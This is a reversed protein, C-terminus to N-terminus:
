GETTTFWPSYSIVTVERGLPKDYTSEFRFRWTRDPTADPPVPLAVLQDYACGPESPEPFQVAGNFVSGVGANGESELFRQISLAVGDNCYFDRQYYLTGGIVYPEDPDRVVVGGDTPTVLTTQEGIRLDDYPWLSTIAFAAGFLVVAVAVLAMMAKGAFRSGRM